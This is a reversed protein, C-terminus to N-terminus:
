GCIDPEIECALRLSEGEGLHEDLETSTVYAIDHEGEIALSTGDAFEVCSVSFVINDRGFQTSLYGTVDKIEKGWLKSLSVLAYQREDFLIDKAQLSGM